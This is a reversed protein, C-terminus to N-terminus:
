SFTEDLVSYDGNNLFGHNDESRTESGKPSYYQEFYSTFTKSDNSALTLYEIELKYDADAELYQSSPGNPTVEYTSYM